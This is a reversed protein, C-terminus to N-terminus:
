QPRTRLTVTENIWCGTNKTAGENYGREFLETKSPFQSRATNMQSTAGAKEYMEYAAIFVLRSQVPDDGSACEKYSNFYLDGILRYADKHGPDVSIARRATARAAERQGRVTQIAAIEMLTEAKKENNEALEVAKNYYNIASDFNKDSKEKRAITIAWGYSPEEQLLVKAVDMFLPDDTCKGTIMQSAIKKALAIDKPNKKFQPAMQNRVFDCDITVCAALIRDVEPKVLNWGEANQGGQAVNANFAQEILDYEALVKQDDLTGDAKKKCLLDMYAVANAAYTKPGNLEFIKKYLAYLQDTTGPKDKLYNWAYIGKRNLMDPEAGFKQKIRWDYIALLTDQAGQQTKADIGAVQGNAIPEYVKLGNVYLSSHLNPANNLFWKFPERAALFKNQKINDTFLIWQEQATKKDEPWNWGAQANAITSLGLVLISFLISIKKM